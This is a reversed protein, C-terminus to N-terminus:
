PEPDHPQRLQGRRAARWNWPKQFDGRWMGARIRRPLTEFEVFLRSHRRDALALGAEVMKANLSTGITRDTGGPKLPITYCIAIMRGYRDDRPFWGADDLPHYCIVPNDLILSKLLVTAAQGCRWQAGDASKCGQEAEPADIGLLQITRAGIELTDGDMVRAPGAIRAENAAAPSALALAVTAALIIGCGSQRTSGIM